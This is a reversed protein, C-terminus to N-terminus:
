SSFSFFNHVNKKQPSFHFTDILWRILESMWKVLSHFFFNRTEGVCLLWSSFKSKWWPSDRWTFWHRHLQHQHWTTRLKITWVSRCNSLHALFYSFDDDNDNTKDNGNQSPKKEQQTTSFSFFLLAILKIFHFCWMWFSSLSRKSKHRISKKKVDHYQQGDWWRRRPEISLAFSILNSNSTKREERRLKRAFGGITMFDDVKQAQRRRRESKKRSTFKVTQQAAAFASSSPFHWISPSRLCSLIFTVM